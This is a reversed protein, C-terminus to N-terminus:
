LPGRSRKKEFDKTLFSLISGSEHIVEEATTPRSPPFPDLKGFPNENAAISLLPRPTQKGLQGNM